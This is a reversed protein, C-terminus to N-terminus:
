CDLNRDRCVRLVLGLLASDEKVDLELGLVVLPVDFFPKGLEIVKKIAKFGGVMIQRLEGFLAEEEFHGFFVEFSSPLSKLIEESLDNHAIIQHIRVQQFL